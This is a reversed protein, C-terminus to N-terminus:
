RRLRRVRLPRARDGRAAPRSRSASSSRFKGHLAEYERAYRALRTRKSRITSEALNQRRQRDRLYTEFRKSRRNTASGGSTGRPEDDEGADVGVEEVIFQKLTLDHHERLTYAIGSYGHDALWEYSPAGDDPSMGARYM